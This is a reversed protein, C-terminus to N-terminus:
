KYHAQPQGQQHPHHDTDRNEAAQGSPILSSFFPILFIQAKAKRSCMEAICSRVDGLGRLTIHLTESGYSFKKLVRWNDMLFHLSISPHRFNTLNHFRKYNNFIVGM